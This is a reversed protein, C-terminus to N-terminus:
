QAADKKKGIPDIKTRPIITKNIIIIVLKNYNCYNRKISYEISSLSKLYNYTNNLRHGCVIAAITAVIRVIM